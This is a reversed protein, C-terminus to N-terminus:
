RQALTSLLAPPVHDTLWVGNAARYFPHGGQHAAAADVQLVVPDGRRAGVTRATTVDASLHVFRRGMPLLGQTTIGLRAGPHTGHYLVAPPALPELGLDVDLSHGQAARIRNDRLEFRQKDSTAVLQELDERNGVRGHRGLADVLETVDVWGGADLHLGIAEPHHRLLYSLYRSEIM